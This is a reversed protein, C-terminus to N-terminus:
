EGSELKALFADRREATLGFRDELVSSRRLIEIAGDVTKRHELLMRVFDIAREEPSRQVQNNQTSQGTELRYIDHSLKTAAVVSSLPEDPNSVRSNIADLGATVNQRSQYILKATFDDALALVEAPARHEIRQVTAVSVGYKDALEKPHTMKVRKEAIIKAEREKPIKTTGKAPM